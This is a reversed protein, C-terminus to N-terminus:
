ALAVVQKRSMERLRTPSCGYVYLPRLHFPFHPYCSKFAQGGSM